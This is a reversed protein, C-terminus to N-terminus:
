WILKSIAFSPFIKKKEMLDNLKKIDIFNDKNVERHIGSTVLLSDLKENIAGQIDNSLSDGIVLIKEKVKKKGIVSFCKEYIESHPKGFYEVKGGQNEYFEALLGACIMSNNGRIVTKDPNSCIMPIDLQSLACLIKTYNELKDNDGWPGTNLVFDAKNPNKTIILKLDKTLHDDRPPGIHFCHLKNKKASIKKKMNLWSVEGSSIIDKYLSEFIGFEKLQEKIIYNRRPANTIFLVDKNNNKLNNLVNLVGPFVEIGNHIVGWLDIFFSDYNKQIDSLNSIKKKFNMNANM